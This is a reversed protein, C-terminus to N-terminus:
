SPLLGILWILAPVLYFLGLLAVPLGIAWTACASGPVGVIKGKAM